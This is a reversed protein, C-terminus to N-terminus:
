RYREAQITAALYEDLSLAAGVRASAEEFTEGPAPDTKIDWWEAPTADSVPDTERDPRYADARPGNTAPDWEGRAKLERILRMLDGVAALPGHEIAQTWENIRTAEASVTTPDDNM